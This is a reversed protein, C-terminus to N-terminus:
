VVSVVVYWRCQCRYVKKKKDTHVLNITSKHCHFCPPIWDSKLMKTWAQKQILEYEDEQLEEIDEQLEEIDGHVEKINKEQRNVTMQILLSLYIAELSVLTTLFLLARDISVGFIVPIFCAIFIVTHWMIAATTGMWRTVFRSIKNLKSQQM